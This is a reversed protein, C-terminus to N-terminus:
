SESGATLGALQKSAQTHGNDAALALWHLAKASNRQLTEDGVLYANGLIYQADVDDRKAAERVYEIGSRKEVGCAGFQFLLRGLSSMASVQGNHAAFRLMKLSVRSPLFGRSQRIRIFFAAVRYVVNCFWSAKTCVSQQSSVVM